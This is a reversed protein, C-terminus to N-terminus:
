HSEQWKLLILHAAHMHENQAREIATKDYDDKANIDAANELLMQVMEASNQWVAYFLPTFGKKDPQNIAVGRTNILTQVIDVHGHTIALPLATRGAPDATMPNAEKNLLTKVSEHSGYIIASHLPTHGRKNKAEIKAGKAILTKICIPRNYQAAIHLATQENNTSKRDLDEGTEAAAIITDKRGNKIAYWLPPLPSLFDPGWLKYILAYIQPEAHEAAYALPTRNIKGEPMTYKAEKKHLLTIKAVSGCDIALLLPTKGEKNTKTLSGRNELLTELVSTPRTLAAIHVPTNGDTTPENPDAGKSLLLKVIGTMNAEMALLLPTLGKADTEKQPAQSEALMGIMTFDLNKIARVLYKGDPNVGYTFDVKRTKLFMNVISHRRHEVATEMASLKSGEIEMQIPANGLELLIRAIEHHGKNTAIVLCKFLYAEPIDPQHNQCLFEVVLTKAGITASRLWEKSKEAKHEYRNYKFMFKKFEANTDHLDSNELRFSIQSAARIQEQTLHREPEDTQNIVEPLEPTLSDDTDVDSELPISPYM